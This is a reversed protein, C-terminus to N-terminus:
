PRWYRFPQRHDRPKKRADREGLWCGLGLAALVLCTQILISM